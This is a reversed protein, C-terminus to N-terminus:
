CLTMVGRIRLKRIQLMLIFIVNVKLSSLFYCQCIYVIMHLPFSRYLVPLGAQHESSRSPHSPLPSPHELPLPSIYCQSEKNYLLFWCM